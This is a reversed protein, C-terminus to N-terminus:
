TVYDFKFVLETSMDSSIFDYTAIPLLVKFFEGVNAPVIVNLIPM